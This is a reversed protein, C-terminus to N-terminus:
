NARQDEPDRVLFCAVFSNIGFVNKVFRSFLTAFFTVMELFHVLDM